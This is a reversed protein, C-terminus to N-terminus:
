GFHSSSEAILVCCVEKMNPRQDPNMDWLRDKVFNVLQGPTEPPLDNVIGDMIEKMSPRQDPNMDWLREKVFNVLQGPTEPPLDNVIGDMIYTKAEQSTYGEYPEGQSFIEYILVGFSYVDSKQTFRLEKLTEPAMWQVPLKMLSKMAYVSTKRALGFGSIKVEKKEEGAKKFRESEAVRKFMTQELKDYGPIQPTSKTQPAGPHDSPPPHPPGGPGYGMGGMMGQGRRMGLLEESFVIKTSLVYNAIQRMQFESEDTLVNQEKSVMINTFAAQMSATTNFGEYFFPKSIRQMLMDYAPYLEYNLQKDYFCNRASLDRHLINKSHIFNLGWGASMVMRLLEVRTLNGAVSKVYEDLPGESISSIFTNRHVDAASSNVPSM